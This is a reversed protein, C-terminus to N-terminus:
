SRPRKKIIHWVVGVMVLVSVIGFFVYGYNEALPTSSTVANDVVLPTSGNTVLFSTHYMDPKYAEDSVVF